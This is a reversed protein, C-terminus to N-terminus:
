PQPEQVLKAAFIHFVRDPALSRLRAAEAQASELTPHRRKPRSGTTCWIFWFEELAVEAEAPAAAPPLPPSPQPPPPPPPPAAPKQLARQVVGRFTAPTTPKQADQTNNAVKRHGGSAAERRSV